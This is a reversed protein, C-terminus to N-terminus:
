ILYFVYLYLSSIAISLLMLPFGLVMFRLFSLRYGREELIGSAVVNASAGILTGNGGLCAGLALSWWLPDLSEFAALQGLNHIIPIMTATFPINDVFASAIASVWLIAMGTPVMQGGTLAVAQIALWEIVGVAEIAGVLIFLGIFFFIVPWEVHNFVKEPDPRVVLLLLSAGMMAVSASELHWFQHTVFGLVTLGLVAITQKALKADKLQERADMAMLRQRSEDSVALRRRFILCIVAITLGSVVLLVPGLNVVFDLFGLGASSGILINPPDGILTSTGGINSFIVESFVLPIPDVELLEAISITVPVVLLVMTVNDLFGSLVATMLSLAILIFVPRGQGLKALGVAAYEFVGSDKTLGVILMMGVLLGIVNFDIAEIAMEHTMVGCVVLVFAGFLSIITRHIKESIIIAYTILFVAIAFAPQAVAPM